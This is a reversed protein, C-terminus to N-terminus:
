KAPKAPSAPAGGQAPPPAMMSPPQPAELKRIGAPLEFLKPDQKDVKLNSLERKFTLKKGQHSMDGQMQLMIDEKSLWVYGHMVEGNPGTAKIEQKTADIGNVKESGVRTIEMNNGSGKGGPIGSADPPLASEIYVNGPLLNWVLNKDKRLISVQTSGDPGRFESREKGPTSYIHGELLQIGGPTSANVTFDAAFEAKTEPLDAAFASAALGSLLMAATRHLLRRM